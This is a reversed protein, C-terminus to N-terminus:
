VSFFYLKLALGLAMHLGIMVLYLPVAKAGVAEHIPRLCPQTPPLVPSTLSAAASPSCACVSVRGAWSACGTWLLGLLPLCLFRLM